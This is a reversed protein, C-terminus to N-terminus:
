CFSTVMSTLESNNRRNLHMSKSVNCPIYNGVHFVSLNNLFIRFMKGNELWLTEFSIKNQNTIMKYTKGTHEINVKRWESLCFNIGWCNRESTLMDIWESPWLGQLPFESCLLAITVWLTSTQFVNPSRFLSFCQWEPIVRRTADWEWIQFMM